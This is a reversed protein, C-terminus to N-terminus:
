AVITARTDQPCARAQRIRRCSSSGTPVPVVASTTRLSQPTCACTPEVASSATRTRRVADFGPSTARANLWPRSMLVQAIRPVSWRSVGSSPPANRESM